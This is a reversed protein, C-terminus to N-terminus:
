FLKFIFIFILLYLFVKMCYKENKMIKSSVQTTKKLIPKVVKKEKVIAEPIEASEYTRKPIYGM